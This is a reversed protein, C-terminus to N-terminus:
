EKIGEIIRIEEITKMKKLNVKLPHNKENLRDFVTTIIETKQDDNM